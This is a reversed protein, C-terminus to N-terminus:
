KEVAEYEYDHGYKTKIIRKNMEVFGHYHRTKVKTLNQGMISDADIGNVAGDDNLSTDVAGNVYEDPNDM